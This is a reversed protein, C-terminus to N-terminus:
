EKKLIIFITHHKENAVACEYIKWGRDLYHPPILHSWRHPNPHEYLHHFREVHIIWKRSVRSIEGTVRNIQEPPIHTLCVHTYVLDFSNDEFPLNNANGEIIEIKNRNDFHGLTNFYEESNAIQTKSFEVGVLKEISAINQILFPLCRGFGCGVELVKKAKTAKVRPLLRDLNIKIADEKLTNDKNLFTGFYKKGLDEWLEKPKYTIEYDLIPEKGYLRTIDEAKFIGM